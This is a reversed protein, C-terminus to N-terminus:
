VVIPVIGIEEEAEEVEDVDFRAENSVSLQDLQVPPHLATLTTLADQHAEEVGGLRFDIQAIDKAELVRYSNLNGEKKQLIGSVCCANHEAAIFMWTPLDKWPSLPFPQSIDGLFLLAKNLALKDKSKWAHGFYVVPWPSKQNIVTDKWQGLDSLRELCFGVVQSDAGLSTNLCQLFKSYAWATNQDRLELAASTMDCYIIEARHKIRCFITRANEIHQQVDYKTAGLKMDIEAMNLLACGYAEANQEPSTIIVIQSYISRAEAYESKVLHIEAQSIAVGHDLNYGSMGCLRLNDRAKQLLAVSKPLDGLLQSCTAHIQCAMAEAYLNGSLKSLRQAESAHLIATCYDGTYEKLHAIWQLVSTQLNSHGCLKSLELAKNLFQLSRAPDWELELFYTGAATYFKCELFSDTFHHFHSLAQSVIEPNVIATHIKSFFGEILFSAELRHDTPQPFSMPIIDMLPTHDRGTLRYFSNLSFACYMTDLLSPHGKELGLRLVEQLNGLNSTIQNIVPRLQEGKYKKYLELVSYFYKRLSQTLFSSPPSFQQIYERIPMLSQLRKRDDQYALSTALLTAKCSLINPIPLSSQVLEVDSLGDPLISLLSLLEKSESTVRPSSLSLQISVDLNSKRDYGVSLSSTKKAEWRTVVNSFGEYDALHGILDVALPMNDTLQLLQNMAEFEYYNDTIDIFIQQAAYDSLPQLPQLFPHTWAVKGPRETGRMTIILGVNPIDTLLSLFEEVGGRADMPEWPTELNDLIVLCEPKGSFYQVVSKTLDKEPSLGVHLGILAALEITNTASEGHVFFLEQLVQRAWEVEGLIAIRPSKEQLMKMIQVLESERGYFIKPSSSRESITTNSLTTILELLEKHMTDAAKKMEEVNTLVSVGTEIKFIGFAQHVGAQCEKLLTNMESQHFIQKIKNGKQQTWSNGLTILQVMAMLSVVTNSIPQIFPPGFADNLENLLTLAPTLCATISTLRIETVTPQRPM